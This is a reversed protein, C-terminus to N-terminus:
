DVRTRLTVRRNEPATPADPRALERDGKGVPILRRQSLQHNRVLYSVVSEARAQSLRLNYEETGRPDAHGEVTFRFNALRDSHLARAMVDLASRAQATLEASDTEFTIMVSANRDAPKRAIQSGSPRVQISRTRAQGDRPSLANILAEETVEDQRFIAGQSYAVVAWAALVTSIALKTNWQM